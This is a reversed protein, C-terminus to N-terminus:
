TDPPFTITFKDGDFLPTEVNVTIKYSTTAGNILSIPTVTVLNLENINVM